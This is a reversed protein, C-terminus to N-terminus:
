RALWETRHPKATNEDCAAYLSDVVTRLGAGRSWGECKGSVVEVPSNQNNGGHHNNQNMEVPSDQPQERRPPQEPKAGDAGQPGGQLGDRRHQHTIGDPQKQLYNGLRLVM